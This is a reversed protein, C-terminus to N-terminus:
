VICNVIPMCFFLKDLGIVFTSFHAHITKIYHSCLACDTSQWLFTCQLHKVYHLTGQLLSVSQFDTVALWILCQDVHIYAHSVVPIASVTPSSVTPHVVVPTSKVYSNLQIYVGSWALTTRLQMVLPPAWNSAEGWQARFSIETLQLQVDATFIKHNNTPKYWFCIILLIKGTIAGDGRQFGWYRLGDSGVLQLLQFRGETGSRDSGCCVAHIVLLSLHGIFHTLEGIPTHLFECQLFPSSDRICM